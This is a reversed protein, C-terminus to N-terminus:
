PNALLSSPSPSQVIGGSQIGTTKPTNPAARSIATATRAQRMAPIRRSSEVRNLNPRKNAKKLERNAEGKIKNGRTVIETGIGFKVIVTSNLFNM